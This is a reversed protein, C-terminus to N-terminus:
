QKALLNRVSQDIARRKTGPRLWALIRYRRPIEKWSDQVLERALREAETM